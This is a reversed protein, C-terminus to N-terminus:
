GPRSFATHQPLLVLGCRNQMLTHKVLIVRHPHQVIIHQSENPYEINNCLTGPELQFVLHNPLPEQITIIKKHTMNTHILHTREM